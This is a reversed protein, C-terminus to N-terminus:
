APEFAFCFFSNGGLNADFGATDAPVVEPQQVRRAPVEPVRMVVLLPTAREVLRVADLEDDYDLYIQIWMFPPQM